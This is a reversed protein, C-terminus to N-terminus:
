IHIKNESLSSLLLKSNSSSLAILDLSKGGTQFTRRCVGTTADWIRVLDDGQSSSAVLKCDFSLIATYVDGRHGHLTHRCELDHSLKDPKPPMIGDHGSKEALQRPTLGENDVSEVDVKGTGLLLEVITGYGNAAAWDLATYGHNANKLDIDMDSATLLLRVIDFHGNQAAVILPTQGHENTTAEVGEEVLTQIVDVLGDEVAKQFRKERSALTSDDSDPRGDSVRQSNEISSNPNNHANSGSDDNLSNDVSNGSSDDSSEKM